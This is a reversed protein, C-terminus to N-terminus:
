NNDQVASRPFISPFLQPDYRTPVPSRPTYTTHLLKMATPGLPRGLFEEYIKKAQPNDNSRRITRSFDIRYLADARNHRYDLSLAAHDRGALIPQGSGGVCGGPCAMIELYHFTEGAKVLELLRRANGLGHAVGVRVQWRGLDVWAEKIGSQGRLEAMDILGTEDPHTVAYATRVAAEMVGGTAGFITGAGSAIGLPQDYDEDPLSAFDIGAQRIMRGLERTTLVYDVDRFQDTGMEPRSAEFKKAVCPMIAVVVVKRPDYGHKAAFYTKALAGFMQHPSKCTSLHGLFEPYFHECFKIWGPCCSTLMPFPGGAELRELFEHAEEIITLDASFDTAFVKDFGLRRLAAVLKGTVVTGPPMGFLEGLTVQISPATQALVIKDPDDLARWVDAICEREYLSATPCALVCQGCTTCAVDALDLMFAPAIVTAFGRHQAAYVHVQQANSCIAECRRCRVCKNYDRVIFPNRDYLPYNPTEGTFRINRIGLTEALNQLECNGNRICTTCERHHESLLLEVVTQRVRRVRATNTHVKLGEAVKYVCAAQLAPLGEIEVLCVRCAGIENIGRLYCLSPIAIGHARAAELINTGEPAEVERGDITLRVTRLPQAPPPGEPGTHEIRLKEDTV